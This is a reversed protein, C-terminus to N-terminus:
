IRIRALLWEINKVAPVIMKQVEEWEKESIAGAEKSMRLREITELSKTLYRIAKEKNDIFFYSNGLAYYLNLIQINFLPANYMPNDALKLINEANELVDIAEKHMGNYHHSYAMGLSIITPVRNPELQLAEKFDKIAQEFRRSTSLNNGRMTLWLARASNVKEADFQREIEEFAVRKQSEFDTGFIKSLFGM